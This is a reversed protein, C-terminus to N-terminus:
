SKDKLKKSTKEIIDKAKGADSDPNIDKYEPSYYDSTIKYFDPDNYADKHEQGTGKDDVRDKFDIGHFKIEHYIIYAIEEPTVNDNLLTSLDVNTFIVTKGKKITNELISKVQKPKDKTDEIQKSAEFMYYTDRQKTTDWDADYQAVTNGLADIKTINIYNDTLQNKLAFEQALEKMLGSAALIKLATDLKVYQRKQSSFYYIKELGELEVYAIVSNESFAYPSNWPYSKELPDRAFFRGVRPDHMRFTYNL